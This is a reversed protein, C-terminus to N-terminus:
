ASCSLRPIFAPFSLLSHFCPIFAQSHFGPFSALCLYSFHETLTAFRVKHVSPAKIQFNLYDICILSSQSVVIDRATLPDDVMYTDIYTHIYTHIYQILIKVKPIPERLVMGMNCHHAHPLGVRSLIWEWRQLIDVNPSLVNARCSCTYYTNVWM